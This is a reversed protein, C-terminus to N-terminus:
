KLFIIKVNIIRSIHEKIISKIKDFINQIM